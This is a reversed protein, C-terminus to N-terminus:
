QHNVVQGLANSQGQQHNVLANFMPLTTAMPEMAAYPVFMLRNKLVAVV